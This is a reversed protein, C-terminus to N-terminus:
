KNFIELSKKVAEDATNMVEFFGENRWLQRAITSRIRNTIDTKEKASVVSINVSDKVASMVFQKWNDETFSFNKIFDAPTKYSKLQALNQLYFNYAFNGITGKSYIMASNKSFGSTDLAIFYDPTIGGRGYVTKGGKTKYM